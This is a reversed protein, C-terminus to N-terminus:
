RAGIGIKVSGTGSAHLRANIDNFEVTIKSSGFYPDPRTGTSQIPKRITELNIQFSEMLRKRKFNRLTNIELEAGSNESYEM